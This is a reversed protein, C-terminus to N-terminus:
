ADETEKPMMAKLAPIGYNGLPVEVGAAKLADRWEAKSQPETTEHSVDGEVGGNIVADVTEDIIEDKKFDLLAALQAELAAIKDDKSEDIVEAEEVPMKPADFLHQDPLDLDAITKPIPAHAGPYIRNMIEEPYVEALRSLEESKGTEFFGASHVRTVSNPGNQAQMLPIETVSVASPGAKPVQTIITEKGDNDLSVLCNVKEIKM